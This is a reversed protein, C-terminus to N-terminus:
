GIPNLWISEHMFWHLTMPKDLFSVYRHIADFQSIYIYLIYIYIYYLIYIYICRISTCFTAFHHCDISRNSKNETETKGGKKESLSWFSVLLTGGSHGLFDKVVAVRRWREWVGLPQLGQEKLTKTMSLKTDGFYVFVETRAALSSFYVSIDHHNGHPHQTHTHVMQISTFSRIIAPAHPVWTRGYAIFSLPFPFTAPKRYRCIYKYVCIYIYIYIYTYNYIYLITM